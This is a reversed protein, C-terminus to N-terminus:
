PAAAASVGAASTRLTATRLVTGRPVDADVVRVRLATGPPLWLRVQATRVAEARDAAVAEDPEAALRAEVVCARTACEPVAVVTAVRRGDLAMHDPRGATVGARAGLVEVDTGFGAPALLRGDAGRLVVPAGRVLGAAAAARRAPHELRAVSRAGLATQDVTVPDLGTLERLYGAMPSWGPTAREQVHAFGAHVLVRAQPDRALTRAVLNRAQARDRRQQPTLGGSTDAGQAPEVEYPVLVYGLRRAERVIEGFVPEAVYLGARREHAWPRTGLASDAADFAEAALYRYGRARLPALLRLTLLRDAAAHHRENVMVVRATDAMGLITALADDAHTGAPLSGV